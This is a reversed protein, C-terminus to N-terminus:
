YDESGNDGLCKTVFHTPFDYKYLIECSYAMQTGQVQTWVGNEKVALFRYGPGTEGGDAIIGGIGGSAYNGELKDVFCLMQGKKGTAADDQYVANADLGKCAERKLESESKATETPTPSPTTTATASAVPTATVTKTIVPTAPETKTKTAEYWYVIGGGLILAALVIFVVWGTALGKKENEM